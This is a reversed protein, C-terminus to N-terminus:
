GEKLLGSAFLQFAHLAESLVQEPNKSSAVWLAANMAAGNLFIAAAESNVAKIRDAALLQEVCERTSELM